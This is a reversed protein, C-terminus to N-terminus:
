KNLGKLASEYRNIIAAVPEIQHIGAVSKGAQWFETEGKEDLSSKRLQFASRLTYFMRMWHKTKSGKLMWRAFAGAKTGIKEIYPTKIISVPVGTIKNSLVVDSEMANVVAQKYPMAASCEETAIFRTGLQCGTYGQKIAEAFQQEAGIGGACILPVNLDGLEDLLQLQTLAGAHGGARNNVAILGDVGGDLGKLAWKRETVDHYVIGDYAKVRDVVWRPNGLSTIFFRVGEDLAISVWEEMREHYKKSSKEILANMGIPKDTLSKILRIGERFDHGHVFTMSVPQVIGIGGAESAAAVLEPNSCPYMPGCIIPVRIGTHQTFPTEM